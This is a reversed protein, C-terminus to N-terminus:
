NAEKIMQYMLLFARNLVEPTLGEILDKNQLQSFIEHTRERNLDSYEQIDPQTKMLAMLAEFTQNVIAGEPLLAKLELLNPKLYLEDMSVQFKMFHNSYKDEFKSLQSITEQDTVGNVKLLIVNNQPEEISKLESELYQADSPNNIKKSLKQWTLTGVDLPTIQPTDNPSNIQVIVAKGSNDEGFKTTEPTGPYVTKITGETNPHCFLSHWEGLALYDLGSTECRAPNIPFNPDEIFDVQLNGHAVGISMDRGLGFDNSQSDIWATPDEQSQKQNVPCPYLTCNGTVVPEKERFITLNDPKEWIPDHYLSDRTLPDHNGPLLYVPTPSIQLIMQSVTGVLNRDVQNSDFIDGAILIFDVNQERATELIKNVTKLRINRAKPAKDGLQKYKMGLHWDATHLFKVM